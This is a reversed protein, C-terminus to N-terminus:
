RKTSNPKNSFYSQNLEKLVGRGLAALFPIGLSEFEYKDDNFVGNENVLLTATLFFELGSTDDKIYAV